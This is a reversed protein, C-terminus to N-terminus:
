NIIFDDKYKLKNRLLNNVVHSFFKSLLQQNLKVVIISGNTFPTDAFTNSVMTLYTIVIFLVHAKAITRQM